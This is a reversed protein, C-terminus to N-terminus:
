VLEDEEDEEEDSASHVGVMGNVKKTVQITGDGAALGLFSSKRKMGVYAIVEPEIDGETAPESSEPTEGGSDSVKEDEDPSPNATPNPTSNQALNAAKREAKKAKRKARRANEDGDVKEAAKEKGKEAKAPVVAGRGFIDEFLTRPIFPADDVGIGRGQGHAAMQRVDDGAIVLSWGGDGEAERFGVVGLEGAEDSWVPESLKFPLARTRIPAPANPTFISIRTSTTTPHQFLAFTPHTPHSIIHTSTSPYDLAVHWLVSFRVLDWLVVVGDGLVAVYRGSKGVFVVERPEKVEVCSLAGCMRQTQADWLTVCPGHVVALLTGDPSFLVCSPVHERYSFSATCIWFEEEPKDRRVAWLKVLGDSGTTALVPSSSSFALSTIKDDGHPRDIRTNLSCLNTPTTTTSGTHWRWFKLYIEGEARSDVTAMWEGESGQGDVCGKGKSERGGSM